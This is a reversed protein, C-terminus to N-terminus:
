TQVFKEKLKELFLKAAPSFIQSKKWVIYLESKLEPELPRFCLSSNATTNILKDIGLAYGLGVDVMIGANYILNYTGVLNLKDLNGDFWQLFEDTANKYKIVQRSGLLPLGLIDELKLSKKKALEDDKKMVVGWIDYTPFKIYEYKSLNIPALLLGFDLLGKDLRETIDDANGSNIHYKIEPYKLHIEQLIEGVQRMSDTEGCGIFIDGSITDRATTFENQTKEVMEIIEEARKKLIQGEPTLSINHQGRIFLKHGLEIELEKLQKSLTPQTLHLSNAANTISGQQAAALFYKLVRIEM